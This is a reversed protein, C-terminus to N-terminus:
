DAVLLVPLVNPVEVDDVGYLRAGSLSRWRDSCSSGELCNVTSWLGFRPECPSGSGLLVLVRVIGVWRDKKLLKRRAKRAWECGIGLACGVRDVVLATADPLWVRQVEACDCAGLDVEESFM